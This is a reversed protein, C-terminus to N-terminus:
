NEICVDYKNVRLTTSVGYHDSLQSFIFKEPPVFFEEVKTETVEVVNERQNAVTDAMFIYDISLGCCYDAKHTLHLERPTTVVAGAETEHPVSHFDGYTIPHEGYTERLLDKLAPKATVLTDMMYRYEANEGRSDINFDGAIIVPYPSGDTKMKVFDAIEQVQSARARDNIVNISEHNDYYSAQMHTTFVHLFFTPSIQIKAYIVQKAAWSDIQNGAIYIMGDTELIPYKSLIVLGADIFKGSTWHPDVSKAYYPFGKEFATKLLLQQRYNALNFMEQLCVIDYKALESKLFEALRENKFDDANNKILPPRLFINYSLLKVDYPVEYKPGFSVSSFPNAAVMRKKRVSVFGFYLIFSVVALSNNELGFKFYSPVLFLSLKTLLSWWASSGLAVKRTNHPSNRIQM